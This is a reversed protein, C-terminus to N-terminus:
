ALVEIKFAEFAMIEDLPTAPGIPTAAPDDYTAEVVIHAEYNGPEYTIQALDFFFINDSAMLDAEYIITIQDTSNGDSRRVILSAASVTYDPAEIGAGDADYLTARFLPGVPTASSDVRLQLQGDPVQNLYFDMQYM